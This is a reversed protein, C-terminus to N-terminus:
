DQSGNKILDYLAGDSRDLMYSSSGLAPIDFVLNKDQFAIPILVVDRKNFRYLILQTFEFTDKTPYDNKNVPRMRNIYTVAQNQQQQNLTFIKGEKDVAMGRIDARNLLLTGSTEETEKIEPKIHTILNVGFLVLIAALAITLLTMNTSSPM